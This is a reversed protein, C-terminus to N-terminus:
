TSSPWGLTEGSGESRWASCAWNEWGTKMPCTNWNESLKQSGGRSRSWCTWTKGTSLTGVDVSAVDECLPPHPPSSLSPFFSTPPQPIPLVVKRVEALNRYPSDPIEEVQGGAPTKLEKRELFKKGKRGLMHSQELPTVFCFSLHWSISLSALFLKSLHLLYVSLCVTWYCLQFQICVLIGKNNSESRSTQTRETLYLM